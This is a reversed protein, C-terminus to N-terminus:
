AFVYLVQRSLEQQQVHHVILVMRVHRASTFAHLVVIKLIPFVTVLNILAIALYEALLQIMAPKQNINFTNIFQEAFLHIVNLKFLSYFIKYNVM